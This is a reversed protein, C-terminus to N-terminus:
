GGLGMNIYMLTTVNVKIHLVLIVENNRENHSSYNEQLLLRDSIVSLSTVLADDELLCYFPLEDDKPTDDEPIENTNKPIRLADLLTKLRNDIDGGQTVIRGPEEHKLLLINVQAILKLHDCVLPMFKFKGIEKIIKSELDEFGEKLGKLPEQEWLNKLQSHFERRIKQKDDIGGNSQLPGKYFLRFEM